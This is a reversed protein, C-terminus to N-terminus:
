GSAFGDVVPRLSRSGGENKSHPAAPEGSTRHPLLLDRSTPKDRSDTRPCFAQRLAPRTRPQASRFRCFACSVISEGAEASNQRVVKKVYFHILGIM